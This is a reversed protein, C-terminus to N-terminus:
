RRVRSEVSAGKVRFASQQFGTTLVDILLHLYRADADSEAAYGVLRHELSRGGAKVDLVELRSVKDWGEPLRVALLARDNFLNKNEALDAHYTDTYTSKLVPNSLVATIRLASAEPAVTIRFAPDTFAEGVVLAPDGFLVRSATGKLM